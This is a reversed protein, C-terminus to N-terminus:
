DSIVTHALLGLWHDPIDKKGTCWQGLELMGGGRGGVGARDAEGGQLNFSHRSAHASDAREILTRLFLWGTIHLTGSRGDSALLMM